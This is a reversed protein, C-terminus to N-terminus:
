LLYGLVIHGMTLCEMEWSGDSLCTITSLNDDGDAQTRVTDSPKSREEMIRSNHCVKNRLKNLCFPM